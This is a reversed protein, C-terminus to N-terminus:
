HERIVRLINVVCKLVDNVPISSCMIGFFYFKLLRPNSLPLDNFCVGSGVNYLLLKYLRGPVVCSKVMKISFVLYPPM